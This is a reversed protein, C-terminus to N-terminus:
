LGRLQVKMFNLSVVDDCVSDIAVWKSESGVMVKAVTSLLFKLEIIFVYNSCQVPRRFIAGVYAVNAGTQVRLSSM